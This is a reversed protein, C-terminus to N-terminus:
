EKSAYFWDVNTVGDKLDRGAQVKRGTGFVVEALRDFKKLWVELSTPADVSFLNGVLKVSFKDLLPSTKLLGALVSMRPVPRECCYEEHMEVEIARIANAKSKLMHLILAYFGTGLNHGEYEVADESIVFCGFSMQFCFLVSSFEAPILLPYPRPCPSLKCIFPLLTDLNAEHVLKGCRHLTYLGESLMTKSTLLWTPLGPSTPETCWDTGASVAHYPLDHFEFTIKTTGWLYSYIEDRVERPISM